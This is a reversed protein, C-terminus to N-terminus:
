SRRGAKPNVRYRKSLLQPADKVRLCGVGGGQRVPVVDGVDDVGEREAHVPHVRSIDITRYTYMEPKSAM